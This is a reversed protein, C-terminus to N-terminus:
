EKWSKFDSIGEKKMAALFEDREKQPLLACVGLQREGREHQKETTEDFVCRKHGQVLLVCKVDKDFECCVKRGFKGVKV